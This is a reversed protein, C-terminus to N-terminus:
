GHRVEHPRLRTGDPSGQAGRRRRGGLPSGEPLLALPRQLAGGEAGHADRCEDGGAVNLMFRCDGLEDEHMATYAYSGFLGIEEAGFCMFRIRRKLKDKVMNIVRAMEMVVVTGSAPDVAGQSIDHGDYHSGTVVYEKDGSTGDVDGIVNHTTVEM